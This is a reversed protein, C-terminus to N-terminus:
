STPPLHCIIRSHGGCPGPGTGGQAEKDRRLNLSMTLANTQRTSIPPEDCARRDDDGAPGRSPVEHLSTSPLATCRLRRISICGTAGQCTDSLSTVRHIREPVRSWCLWAYVRSFNAESRWTVRGAVCDSCRRTPTRLRDILHRTGCLGCSGAGPPGGPGDRRREVGELRSNKAPGPASGFNAEEECWAMIDDRCFGSATRLGAQSTQRRVEDRTPSLIGPVIRGTIRSARHESRDGAAGERALLISTGTGGRWVAPVNGRRGEPSM